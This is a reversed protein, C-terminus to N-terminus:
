AATSWLSSGVILSFNFAARSSCLNVTHDSVAHSHPEGHECRTALPDYPHFVNYVSPCHEMSLSSSIYREHAPRLAM